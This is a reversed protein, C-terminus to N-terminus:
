APGGGFVWQRCGWGGFVSQRCGGGGWYFFMNDALGSVGLSVEKGGDQVHSGQVLLVLHLGWHM